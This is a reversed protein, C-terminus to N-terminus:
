NYGPIHIKPVLGLIRGDCIAAAVNYLKNHYVVPLGVFLLGRRSKTYNAIRVLARQAEQLLLEQLFLDGCTYGTICLEPMVILDTDKEAAEDLLRCIEDGNHKTDAVKIDPTVAAVKIFGHKM